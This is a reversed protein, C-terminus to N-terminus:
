PPLSAPNKKANEEDMPTPPKYPKRCVSPWGERSRGYKKYTKRKVKTARRVKTKKEVKDASVIDGRREKNNILEECGEM